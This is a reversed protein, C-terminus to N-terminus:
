PATHCDAVDPDPPPRRGFTDVETGRKRISSTPPTQALQQALAARHRWAHPPPPPLGTSPASPRRMPGTTCRSTFGSFTSIELVTTHLDGIETQHPCHGAPTVDAPTIRPVAAYRDGSCTPRRGGIRATVIYEIPTSIKSISVPRVGTGPRYEVPM